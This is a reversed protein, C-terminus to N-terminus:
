KKQENKILNYLRHLMAWNEKRTIPFDPFSGDSIGKEIAWKRDNEFPDLFQIPGKENKIGLYAAINIHSFPNYYAKQLEIHLHPGTVNGTSGETGIEQGEKVVDGVKAFRSAKHAYICFLGDEQEIVTYNGWAGFMKSRIVKGGWIAVLTPDGDSVMDLGPHVGSDYQQNPNKIGYIQTIRVKSPDKYPIM